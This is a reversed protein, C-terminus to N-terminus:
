AGPVEIKKETVLRPHAELYAKFVNEDIWTNAAHPIIISTDVYHWIGAQECIRGFYMDESPENSDTPYEYRFFPPLYGKHTLELLVWRRIAIASTSVIACPYTPGIEFEATSHLAGNLRLFFLPDYPEGRRFALAGVVGHQPDHASFRSIIDAPHKHDGDLMVLLDNDRDSAEMFAKMYQNRAFDTRNYGSRMHMYGNAGAHEAVDLMANYCQDNAAGCRESLSAWFIKNNSM